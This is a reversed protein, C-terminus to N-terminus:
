LESWRPDGLQRMERRLLARTNLLARRDSPTSATVIARGGLEHQLRVHGGNTLEATWGFRSLSRVFQWAERRTM